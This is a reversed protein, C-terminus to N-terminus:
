SISAYVKHGKKDMDPIYVIILAFHGLKYKSADITRVKLPVQITSIKQSFLKKALWNRDILTIENTTDFCVLGNPNTLSPLATLDFTISITIYNWGKFALGLRPAFLKM